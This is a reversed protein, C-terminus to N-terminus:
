KGARAASYELGAASAEGEVAVMHRVKNIMGRIMPSDNKTVISNLKKFGLAKLVKHQDKNYGIPSRVLQVNIQKDNSPM